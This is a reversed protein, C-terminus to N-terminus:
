LLRVSKFLLVIQPENLRFNFSIRTPGVILCDPVPLQGPSLIAVVDLPFDPFPSCGFTGNPEVTAKLHELGTQKDDSLSPVWSEM